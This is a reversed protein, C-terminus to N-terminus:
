MPELAQAAAILLDKGSAELSIHLGGKQVL